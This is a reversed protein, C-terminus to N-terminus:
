KSNHQTMWEEKTIRYEMRDRLKGDHWENMKHVAERVMGCKEMVHWSAINDAICGSQVVMVDNETFAYELLAKVAETTYGHNWYKKRIFYGLHVLKGQPTFEKVTYGVEGIHEGTDKRQARLFYMTRDPNYNETISIMLNKRSEDMSHTMIDQMYYMSEADSLLEHHTMCDEIQHDRLILRETELYITKM